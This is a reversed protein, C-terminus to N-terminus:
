SSSPQPGWDIFRPSFPPQAIETRHTGDPHMKMLRFRERNLNELRFAIWRGDPSFSGALGNVGLRDLHTLFRLGTGDPRITGVNASGENVQRTFVIRQGDPAWDHKIAVYFRFPLIQRLHSGDMRVTYLAQGFETGNGAVFSLRHGLPSVNPDTVGKGIGITIRRRNGGQLNMIWIAEVNTIDNFRGFVIRRGDPTFSPQGECGNRERTLDVANTGDANMLVVSCFPPGSPHDLEYVIRWGDPSWDPHVTDGEINNLQRFAKGDPKITFLKFGLGLDSGFVIPGNKGPATAQVPTGGGAVLGLLIVAASAAISFRRM